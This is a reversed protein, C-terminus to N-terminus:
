HAELEVTSDHIRLGGILTRNGPPELCCATRGDSLPLRPADWAGRAPEIGAPRKSAPAARPDLAPGGLGSILTRSGGDARGNWSNAPLRRGVAPCRAKFGAMFTRSRGGRHARAAPLRLGTTWQPSTWRYPAQSQGLFGPNLERTGLVGAHRLLCRPPKTLRLDRTRDGGGARASLACPGTTWLCSVRSMDPGM